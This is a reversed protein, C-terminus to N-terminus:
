SPLRLQKSHMSLPKWCLVMIWQAEWQGSSGAAQAPTEKSDTIEWGGTETAEVWVKYIGCISVAIVTLEIMSRLHKEATQVIWSVSESAYFHSIYLRCSIRVSNKHFQASVRYYRQVLCNYLSIFDWSTNQTTLIGSHLFEPQQQIHRDQLEQSALPDM